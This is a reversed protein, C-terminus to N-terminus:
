VTFNFIIWRADIYQKIEVVNGESDEKDVERVM